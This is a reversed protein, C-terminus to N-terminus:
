VMDFSAPVCQGTDTLYQRFMAGSVEEKEAADDTIAATLVSGVGCNTDFCGYVTM